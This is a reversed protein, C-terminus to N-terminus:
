GAGFFRGKGKAKTENPKAVQVSARSSPTMGFNQEIKLLEAGLKNVIAVQPWQQVCKVQGEDDKLSYVEGKEQIFEAARRWRVWLSCYRTLTNGDIKALVGMDDLQPVIRRWALKAEKCLWAPCPPKGLEPEPENKRADARWSGRVKLTATPTPQPGRKGMM